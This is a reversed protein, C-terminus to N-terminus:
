TYFVNAMTIVVVLFLISMISGARMFDTVRYGGPGHIMANVQHTPIIFSNSCCLAVVLAFISPNAGVELAVNIAIPVLLVTAGVNSILLSFISAIVGLAIMFVTAPVGELLEVVHQAIWLATQTQEVALGLPILSALLFVSQWGISQYAEEIKIVGALIMLVAGTMLAISLQLNTFMVLSLAVGFIALAHFFKDPNHDERPFDTVVVIEFTRAFKQLDRWLCYVILSDGARVEVNAVNRRIPEENRYIAVITVGYNKRSQLQSMSKGIASSSPPIVVEAVGSSIPDFTEQFINIKEKMKLGFSWANKKIQDHRGMMAIHSNAEIQQGMEPEVVIKGNAYIAIIREEYGSEDEVQEVTSGVISSESPVYLEYVQGTIGYTDQFYNAAAGTELAKYPGSPLIFRGFLFFLSIGTVLLTIGVPTVDFLSFTQLKEVHSPLNSASATILDNLLILPSSGVMTLTGGMIACFGMPMLLRNSSVGSRKSIRDTVPLFLAAAGINQIFGSMWGVTGTVMILITRETDGAIKLIQGALRDLAGTKDLGAGLVMVAIISMVANSSFGTFLESPAILGEYGPILSSLGIIVLILIAIVDVRFVEFAFLIMTFLLLGLVAIMQPSLPILEVSQEALSTM